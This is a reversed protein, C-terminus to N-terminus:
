LNFVKSINGSFIKDNEEKTFGISRVVKLYTALREEGTGPGFPTDTAFVLQDVGFVDYACKIASANGGVATDYYILSFLDHLPKTMKRGLQKEQREPAYTEEIRGWLFPIGGGLHHSVIKLTPFVELTGSFVLRSLALITEFPWGFNHTLDFEKEYPRGTSVVPDAPHLVVPLNLESVHAWFDTFEPSDIPKGFWHTAIAVGKMGGKVVRELEKKGYKEYNELTVTGVAILKGKSEEMLKMMGDNIVKAVKCKTEIEKPMNSSYVFHIPTVIQMDVENKELLQLRLQVNFMTPKRQFWRCLAETKKEAWSGRMKKFEKLSTEHMMHTNADIIM